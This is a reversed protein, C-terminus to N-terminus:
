GFYGYGPCNSSIFWISVCYQSFNQTVVWYIAGQGLSQETISRYSASSGADACSLNCIPPVAPNYIIPAFILVVGIVVIGTIMLALM